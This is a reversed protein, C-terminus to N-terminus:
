KKKEIDLQATIDGDRGDVNVIRPKVDAQAKVLRKEALVKAAKLAESYQDPAIGLKKLAMAHVLSYDLTLTDTVSKTTAEVAVGRSVSGTIRLTVDIPTTSDNPVAARAKKVRAEGIVKSIAVVEIDTLELPQKPM